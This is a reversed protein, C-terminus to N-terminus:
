TTGPMMQCAKSLKFRLNGKARRQALKPNTLLSAQDPELLPKQWYHHDFCQDKAKLDQGLWGMTRVIHSVSRRLGGGDGRGSVSGPIFYKLALSARAEVLAKCIQTM